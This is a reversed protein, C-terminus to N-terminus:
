YNIYVESFYGSSSVAELPIIEKGLEKVYSTELELGPM